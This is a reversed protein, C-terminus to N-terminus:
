CHQLHDEAQRQIHHVDQGKTRIHMQDSSEMTKWHPQGGRAPTATLSLYLKFTRFDNCFRPGGNSKPVIVILRAWLSTPQKILGKQLM